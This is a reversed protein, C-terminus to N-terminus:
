LAPKTAMTVIQGGERKFSSTSATPTFNYSNIEDTVFANGVICERNAHTHSTTKDQNAPSGALTILTVVPRPGFPPARVFLPDTDFLFAFELTM